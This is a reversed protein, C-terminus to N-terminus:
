EQSGLLQSIIFVGRKSGNLANIVLLDGKKSWVPHPDIRFESNKGNFSPTTDVVAIVKESNGTVKRIPIMKDELAVRENPYCDTVLWGERPNISPHGSGISNSNFIEIQKGTYHIIAFRLYCEDSFYRLAFKRAVKELFTDFRGLISNENKFMLNMVINEGDPCWNPHHGGIWRKSDVSMNLNKGHKDMTILFNKTKKSKNPLWRVLFMIRSTQPNWKTHFGYFAGDNLDIETFYIKLDQYIKSFSVLLHSTGTINDIIFLGDNKSAGFNKEVKKEPLIVGYGKQVNSIKNLCPSISYKGCPSVMYISYTLKMEQRTLFDAKVGYIQYTEADMRNFYLESDKAGWQVQAGLQTDWALTKSSYVIKKTSLEIIVVFAYEGYTPTKNEYPLKCVALYKGSPSIPSTDYFRHIYSEDKETFSEINYRDSVDFQEGVNMKKNNM